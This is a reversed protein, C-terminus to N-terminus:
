VHGPFSNFPSANPQVASNEREPKLKMSDGPVDRSGFGRKLPACRVVRVRRRRRRRLRRGRRCLRRRLVVGAARLLRVPIM